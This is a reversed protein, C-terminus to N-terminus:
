SAATNKCPLGSACILIRIFDTRCCLQVEGLPEKATCLPDLSVSFSMGDRQMERKWGQITAKLEATTCRCPFQTLLVNRIIKALKSEDEVIKEWNESGVASKGFM